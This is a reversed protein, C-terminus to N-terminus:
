AGVFGIKNVAKSRVADGFRRVESLREESLPGKAVGEANQQLEDWTAAGTLVLSVRPHQLAFRYCEEASMPGLSGLPELLKGWRTATYTVVGPREPPLTSLIEKEAGRHAANYRIMLVDLGLEDVLARAMP